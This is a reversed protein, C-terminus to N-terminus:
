EGEPGELKELRQVSFHSLGLGSKEILSKVEIEFQDPTLAIPDELWAM